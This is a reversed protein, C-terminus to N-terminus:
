FLSGLVEAKPQMRQVFVDNVEGIMLRVRDLVAKFLRAQLQTMERM